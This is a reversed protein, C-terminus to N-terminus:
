FISCRGRSPEAMVNYAWADLRYSTSVYAVTRFKICECAKM